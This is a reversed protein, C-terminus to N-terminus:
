RISRQLMRTAVKTKKAIAYFLATVSATHVSCNTAAIPNKHRKNKVGM